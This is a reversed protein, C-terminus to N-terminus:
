PEVGLDAPTILGRYPIGLEHLRREADGGSRDQGLYAPIRFHFFDLCLVRTVPERLVFPIGGRGMKQGQCQKSGTGQM